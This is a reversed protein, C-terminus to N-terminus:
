DDGYDRRSSNNEKSCSKPHNAQFRNQNWMCRILIRYDLTETLMIGPTDEDNSVIIPRQDHLEPHGIQGGDGRKKLITIVSFARLRTIWSRHESGKEQKKHCLRFDAYGLPDVFHDTNRIVRDDTTKFRPVNRSDTREVVEEFPKPRGTSVIKVGFQLPTFALRLFSLLLTFLCRSGCRTLDFTQNLPYNTVGSLGSFQGIIAQKIEELGM